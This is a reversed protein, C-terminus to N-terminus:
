AGSGITRRVKKIEKDRQHLPVKMMRIGRKYGERDAAQRNEALRGLVFGIQDQTLGQARLKQAEAQDWHM